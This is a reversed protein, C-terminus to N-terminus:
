VVATMGGDVYLIQGNVYDSAASSLFVAAGVLEEPRGWRRSPTRGTVWANFAAAGHPTHLIPSVNLPVPVRPLM